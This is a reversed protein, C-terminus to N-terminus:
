FYFHFLIYITFVCYIFEPGPKLDYQQRSNLQTYMRVGARQRDWNIQFKADSYLIFSSCSNDLLCPSVVFILLCYASIYQSDSWLRLTSPFGSVSIFVRLSCDIIGLGMFHFKKQSRQIPFLILRQLKVPMQYWNREYFCYGVSVLVNTLIESQNCYLFTMAMTTLTGEMSFISNMTFLNNVDVVLLLVSSIMAVILLQYFLAPSMLEGLTSTLRITLSLLAKSPSKGYELGRINKFLFITSSM